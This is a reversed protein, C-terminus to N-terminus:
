CNTRVAYSLQSGLKEFSDAIDQIIEGPIETNEITTRLNGSILRIKELDTSQLEALQELWEDMVPHDNVMHKFADTTICFGSPMRIGPMKELEALNLSKGGVLFLDSKELEQFDLVYKRM